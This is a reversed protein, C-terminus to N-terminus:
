DGEGGSALAPSAAHWLLRAELGLTVHEGEARAEIEFSPITMDPLTDHMDALFGFVSEFRGTGSIAIPMIEFSGSTMADGPRISDISLAHTAALAGLSALRRNLRTTPELLVRHDAVLSRSESLRELARVRDVDRLTSERELLNQIEASRARHRENWSLLPGIVGVWAVVSLVLIAGAGVLDERGFISQRGPPSM